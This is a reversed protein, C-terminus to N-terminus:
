GSLVNNDCIYKWYGSVPKRMCYLMKTENSYSVYFDYQEYCLWYNQYVESNYLYASYEKRCYDFCQYGDCSYNESERNNIILIPVVIAATYGIIGFVLCLINFTLSLKAMKKATSFNNQRLRNKAKLSFVLAPIWFFFFPFFVILSFISWMIWTKEKNTKVGVYNNKMNQKRKKTSNNNKHERNSLPPLPVLNSTHTKPIVPRIDDYSNEYSRPTLPPLKPYLQPLKNPNPNDM